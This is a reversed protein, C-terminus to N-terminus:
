QQIRVERLGTEGHIQTWISNYWVSAAESVIDAGNEFDNWIYSLTM